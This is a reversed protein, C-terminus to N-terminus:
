NSQRKESNRGCPVHATNRWDVRHNVPPKQSSSGTVSSLVATAAPAFRNKQMDCGGFFHAQVNANIGADPRLVPTGM